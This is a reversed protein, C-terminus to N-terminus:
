IWAKFLKPRLVIQGFRIRLFLKPRLKTRVISNLYELEYVLRCILFSITQLKGKIDYNGAFALRKTMCEKQLHWFTSLGFKVIVKFHWCIWPEFEYILTEAFFCSGQKWICDFYKSFFWIKSDVKCFLGFTKLFHRFLTM